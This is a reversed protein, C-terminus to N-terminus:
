RPAAAIVGLTREAVEALAAQTAQEFAEVVAGMRNGDAQAAGEADFAALVDRDSSRGVSCELSVRVRPAAGASSYEADFRRIAIYLRYDSGFPAADDHVARLAGRGRLTEAALTGVVAPLPGSWRSAAYFGLRRDPQLLLIRDGAYGPQAVVRAVQLTRAAPGTASAPMASAAPAARLVYTVPEAADSRLGGGCGPLALAAFLLGAARAVRRPLSGPTQTM